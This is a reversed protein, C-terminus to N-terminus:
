FISGSCMFHNWDQTDVTRQRLGQSEGQAKKHVLQIHMFIRNTAMGIRRSLSVATFVWHITTNATGKRKRESQNLIGVPLALEASGGHRLTCIFIIIHPQPEALLKITSHWFVLSSTFHRPEPRALAHPQAYSRGQGPSWVLEKYSYPINETKLPFCVHFHM